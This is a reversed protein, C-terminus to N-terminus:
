SLGFMEAVFCCLFNDKPVVNEKGFKMEKRRGVKFVRVADRSGVGNSQHFGALAARWESGVSVCIDGKHQVHEHGEEM